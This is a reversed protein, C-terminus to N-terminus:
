SAAAAESLCRRGADGHADLRVTRGAIAAPDDGEAVPRGGPFGLTIRLDPAPLSPGAMEPWEVLCAGDGRFYEDFGADRWEDASSFRYFDFHYVPFKPLNYPELLTFTPSRVRGAHGLSSLLGRVFTTKGVGLGGSLWVVTGPGLARAVRAALAATAAEDALALELTSSPAAPATM